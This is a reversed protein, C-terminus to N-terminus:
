VAPQDELFEEEEFEYERQPLLLRLQRAADPKFRIVPNASGHLLNQREMRCVRLFSNELLDNLIELSRMGHIPQELTIDPAALCNNGEFSDNNGHLIAVVRRNHSWRFNQRLLM